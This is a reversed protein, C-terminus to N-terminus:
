KSWDGATFRNVGNAHWSHPDSKYIEEFMARATKTYIRDRAAQRTPWLADPLTMGQAKMEMLELDCDLTDADKVIQSELTKREEYERWLTLVEESLISCSFQDNMAENEKRDAYMHSLYNVDGTRIEAIDHLLAMKICKSVDASERVALMWAIWAVRFSHEADNAPQGGGFEKWMRDIHRFSGIEFLLDSDSRQKKM